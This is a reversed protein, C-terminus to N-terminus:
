QKLVCDMFEMCDAVIGYDAFSFIAANPDSNVAITVRTDCVGETHQIAGSVGLFITWKPHVTCGTQGIQNEFPIVGQDVLPRTGGIAAGMKQAFAKAKEYGEMEEVNELIGRGLAIVREAEVISETNQQELDIITITSETVNVLLVDIQSIDYKTTDKEKGVVATVIAPTTKEETIVLYENGFAPKMQKFADDDMFLNTCDATMGVDLLVAVRAFISKAGVTAPVLVIEPEKEKIYGSIAVACEREHVMDEDNLGFVSIEECGIEKLYAILESTYDAAQENSIETFVLARHNM